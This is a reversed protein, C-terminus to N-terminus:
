LVIHPILVKDLLFTLKPSVFFSMPLATRERSGM